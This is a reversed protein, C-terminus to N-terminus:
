KKKFNLKSGDQEMSMVDGDRTMVVTEGDEGKITVEDGDVKFTGESTEDGMTVTMKGNTKFEFVFDTMGMEEATLEIGLTEASALAWSTNDMKTKQKNGCGVLLISFLLVISLIFVNKKM